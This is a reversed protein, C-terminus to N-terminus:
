RPPQARLDHSPKILCRAHPVLPHDMFARAGELGETGAEEGRLRCALGCPSCRVVLVGVKAAALIVVDPSNKRFWSNVNNSDLLNLEKRTPVFLEGRNEKKGYGSKKLSRIIASGAMGTSGAIYIKDDLFLHKKM